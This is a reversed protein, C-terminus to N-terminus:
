TYVISNSFHGFIPCKLMPKNADLSKHCGFMRIATHRHTCAGTVTCNVNVTDSDEREGYTSMKVSICGPVGCRAYATWVANTRRNPCRQRLYNRKFILACTSWENHFKDYMVDTWGSKLRLKGAAPLLDQWITKSLQFCFTTSQPQVDTPQSGDDGESSGVVVSNTRTPYQCSM